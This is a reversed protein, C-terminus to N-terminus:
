LGAESQLDRVMESVNELYAAWEDMENGVFPTSWM